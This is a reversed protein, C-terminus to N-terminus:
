LYLESPTNNLELPLGTKTSTGGTLVNEQLYFLDDYCPKSVGATDFFGLGIPIAGYQKDFLKQFFVDEIDYQYCFELLHALAYMFYDSNILTDKKPNPSTFLNFETITSHELFSSDNGFNDTIEQYSKEKGPIYPSLYVHFSLDFYGEDALEPFVSNTIISMFTDQQVYGTCTYDNNDQNLGWNIPCNPKSIEIIPM